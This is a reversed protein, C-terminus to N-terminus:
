NVPIEPNGSFGLSEAHPMGLQSGLIFHSQANAM